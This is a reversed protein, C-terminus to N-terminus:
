KCIGEVARKQPGDEIVELVFDKLDAPGIESEFVWYVDQSVKGNGDPKLVPMYDIYSDFWIRNSSGKAVRLRLCRMDLQGAQKKFVADVAAFVLYSGDRKEISKLSITLQVDQIQFNREAIPHSCAFLVTFILGPLLRFKLLWLTSRMICHPHNNQM